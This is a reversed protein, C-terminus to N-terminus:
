PDTREANPLQLDVAVRFAPLPDSNPRPFLVSTDVDEAPRVVSLALDLLGCLTRLAELDGSAPAVLLVSARARGDGALSRGAATGPFVWAGPVSLRARDTTARVGAATLEAALQECAPVLSLAWSM